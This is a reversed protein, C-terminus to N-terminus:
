GIELERKSWLKQDLSAKLRIYEDVIAEFHAGLGQYERLRGHEVDLEAQIAATREAVESTIASLAQVSEESYIMSSVEARLLKLKASVANSRAESARVRAQDASSYATRENNDAEAADLAARMASQYLPLATRQTHLIDRDYQEATEELGATDRTMRHIADAVHSADSVAYSHPVMRNWLEIVEDVDSSVAQALATSIDDFFNTRDPIAAIAETLREKVRAHDPAHDGPLLTPLLDITARIQAVLKKTQQHLHDNGYVCLANPLRTLPLTHSLLAELAHTYAIHSKQTQDNTQQIGLSPTIANLSRLCIFASHTAGSALSTALDKTPPEDPARSM